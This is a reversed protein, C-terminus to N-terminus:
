FAGASRYCKFAVYATEHPSSGKENKCKEYLAKVKAKDNTTSLKEIIVNEQQNGNADVFGAANLFCLTFRQSTEDNNSFDGAKLQKVVEPNVKTEGICKKMLEEGKKLQEETFPQAAAVALLGFIAIAVFSKM